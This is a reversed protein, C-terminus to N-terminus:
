SKIDKNIYWDDMYSLYKYVRKFGNKTMIKFIKERKYRNFNHEITFFNVKYKKFNFKKIIDIENGETDISIYDINKDFKHFKILHNLSITDTIYKGSRYRSAKLSSQYPDNNVFFNVNKKSFQSIPRKELIAKRVKKIKKQSEKVPECIIGKWLFKKEHIYTNSLDVGNGGGIEIFSGNKKEKLHYIVFLDQYIQSKSLNMNKFLYKFFSRNRFSFLYLLYVKINTYLKLNM